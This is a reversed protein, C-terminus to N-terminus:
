VVLLGHRQDPFPAIEVFCFKHVATARKILCRFPLLANRNLRCANVSCLICYPVGGICMKRHEEQDRCLNFRVFPFLVNGDEM